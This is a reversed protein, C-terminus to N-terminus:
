FWSKFNNNRGISITASQGNIPNGTPQLANIQQQLNSTAGELYNAPTNNFTLTKVNGNCEISNFKNLIGTFINNADLNQEKIL